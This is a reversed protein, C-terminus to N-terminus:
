APTAVSEAEGAPWALRVVLGGRQSVALSGDHATMIQALIPLVM